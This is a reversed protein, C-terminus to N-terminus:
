FTGACLVGLVFSVFPVLVTQIAPGSIRPFVGVSLQALSTADVGASTSESIGLGPPASEATSGVRLSSSSMPHRRWLWWCNLM